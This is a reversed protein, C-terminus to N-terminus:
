RFPANLESKAQKIEWKTVGCVCSSVYGAHTRGCSCTWGDASTPQTAASATVRASGQASRQMSIAEPQPQKSEKAQMLKLIEKTNEENKVTKEVLEGFAYLFWSSIWPVITGVVITVIGYLALENVILIFGALICVIAYVVFLVQALKKIKKGINEYLDYM